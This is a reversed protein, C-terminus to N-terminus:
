QRTGCLKQTPPLHYLNNITDAALLRLCPPSIVRARTGYALAGGHPKVGSKHRLWREASCEYLM